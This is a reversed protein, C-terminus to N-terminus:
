HRRTFKAEFSATGGVAVVGLSGKADFGIKVTVSDIEYNKIATGSAELMTGIERLVETWGDAANRLKTRVVNGVDPVFSQQELV